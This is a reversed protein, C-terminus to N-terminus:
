LCIPDHQASSFPRLHVMHMSQHFASREERARPWASSPMMLAESSKEAAWSSAWRNANTPATLSRATTWPARTIFRRGDLIEKRQHRDDPQGPSSLHRLSVKWIGQWPFFLHLWHLRRLRSEKISVAPSQGHAHVPMAITCVACCQASSAQHPTLKPPRQRIELPVRTSCPWVLVYDRPAAVNELILMDMATSALATRTRSAKGPRSVKLSECRALGYSTSTDSTCRRCYHHYRRFNFEFSICWLLPM